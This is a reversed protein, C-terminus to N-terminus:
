NRALLEVIYQSSFAPDINQNNSVKWSNWNDPTHAICRLRTKLQETDKQTFWNQWDGAGKTRVVRNRPPPIEVHVNIPASFVKEINSTEGAVFDEYCVVVPKKKFSNWVAEAKEQDIETSEIVDVGDFRKGTEILECFDVSLPDSEKKRLLDLMIKLQEPNNRLPRHRFNYLFRSVVVDRPDREIWVIHKYQKLLKHEHDNITGILKKVVIDRTFRGVTKLDPPEFIVTHQRGTARKLVDHIAYLLGTTGSKGQGLILVRM